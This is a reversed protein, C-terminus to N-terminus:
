INTFTNGTMNIVTEENEVKLTVYFSFNLYSEIARKALTLDKSNVAKKPEGKEIVTKSILLGYLQFDKTEIHMRLGSALTTYTDNQAKSQNSATEKNKNKNLADLLSNKAEIITALDFGKDISISEFDSSEMSSLAVIKKDVWNSYSIGVLVVYKSLENQKNRYEIGVFKAGKSSKLENLFDKRSSM